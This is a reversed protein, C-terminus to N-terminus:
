RAKAVFSDARRLAQEAELTIRAVLEGASMVEHILGTAEGVIVGANQADGAQAAQIYASEVTDLDDKLANENGHWTQTFSNDLVRVAFGKPWHKRRIIDVTSTQLTGDGTAEVAAKHFGDPVLAEQSAWFRSGMLVGDAGLMLAAAVGRGDAIGGAAVVLVSPAHAQCYDVTEAVFSLTGRAAGHGGAESGQAVVVQAGGALAEKVHGLTQCQCIPVIGAELVKGLFPAPDGFSFFMARPSAALAQDLLEPQEALSWTIFGCGVAQNGAAIIERELWAADGYGGGILGLGGAASVAAALKGGAAMAMPASIIPTELDFLDTLRTRIPM